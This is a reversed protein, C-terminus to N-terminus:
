LKTEMSDDCALSIYHLGVNADYLLKRNPQKTIGTFTGKVYRLEDFLKGSIKTEYRSNKSGASFKYGNDHPIFYMRRNIRDVAFSFREHNLFTEFESRAVSIRITRKNYRASLHVPLKTDVDKSGSYTKSFINLGMKELKSLDVEKEKRNNVSYVM